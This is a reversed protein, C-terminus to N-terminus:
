SIRNYIWGFMWVFVFSIVAAEIMGALIGGASLSFFIHWQQMMRVAGMYIGFNGLIGLIVMISASIIAASYALALANLKATM